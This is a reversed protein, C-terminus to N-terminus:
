QNNQSQIWSEIANIRDQLQGKGFQNTATSQASKRNNLKAIASAKRQNFANLDFPSAHSLVTLIEGQDTIVLAYYMGNTESKIAISQFDVPQVAITAERAEDARAAALRGASVDRSETVQAFSQVSVLALLAILFRM